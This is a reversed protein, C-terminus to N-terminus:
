TQDFQISIDMHSNRIAIRTEKYNHDIITGVEGIYKDMEPNYFLKTRWSDGISKFRFGKCQRGILNEKTM